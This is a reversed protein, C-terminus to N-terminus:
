ELPFLVTAYNTTEPKARPIRRLWLLLSRLMKFAVSFNRANSTQDSERWHIPVFEVPINRRYFELLLDVNFNFSDSLEGFPLKQLDATRFLNLGSGLDRTPYRTALTFVLNLVRNGWIRSASYNHLRSAPMFRSGLVTRERTRALELLAPIDATDAQDDGHLILVAGFGNQIAHNFAVKHTGGLGFNKENQAVLVKKALPSHRRLQLLRQLTGDASRNDIFLAAEIQAFAPLLELARFVREVQVECNYCPIALLVKM